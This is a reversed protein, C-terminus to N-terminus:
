GEALIGLGAWVPCATNLRLGPDSVLPDPGVRHLRVTEEWAQHLVSPYPGWALLPLLPGAWKPLNGKDRLLSGSPSPILKIGSSPTKADEHYNERFPWQPNGARHQRGGKLLAPTERRVVKEM